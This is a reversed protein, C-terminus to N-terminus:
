GTTLLGLQILYLAGAVRFVRTLSVLVFTSLPMGVGGAAWAALSYPLPSVAAVFVVWTGNQRVLQEIRQGRAGMLRGIWRTRRLSRGIFWGVIGGLVSGFTGWAVVEWFSLGGALGFLGFTDNPFPITFADPIFYGLAVGPGGLADIFITSLAELPTRLWYGIAGVACFLLVVFGASSLLLRRPRLMPEDDSVLPVPDSSLNM